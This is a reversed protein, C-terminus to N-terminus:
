ACRESTTKLVETHMVGLANLRSSLLLKEVNFVGHTLEIGEIAPKLGSEVTLTKLSVEFLGHDNKAEVSLINLVDTHEDRPSHKNREDIFKLSENLVLSLIISPKQLNFEESYEHLKLGAILRSAQELSKSFSEETFLLGKDRHITGEPTTQSELIRGVPTRVLEYAMLTQHFRFDHYCDGSVPNLQGPTFVEFNPDAYFHTSVSINRWPSGSQLKIKIFDDMNRHPNEPDGESHAHVIDGTPAGYELDILTEFNKVLQNLQERCRGPFSDIPALSGNTFIVVSSM